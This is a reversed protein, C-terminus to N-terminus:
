PLRLNLMAFVAHARFDNAGSSSPERYYDFSYQLRGSINKGFRRTIGTELSHEQYRMGTPVATLPHINGYNAESFNWGVFLDTTESFVYTGSADASYTDGRYPGVTPADSNATHTKSPEYTFSAALYVRPHPTLVSGISYRQSDSRATHINGAPLVVHSTENSAGNATDRFDTTLLQYSLTTKLWNCPRLVLRAEIEDTLLNRASFFGPYGNPPQPPAANPYHSDNQYHRYHTSLTMWRWPSTSLGARFDSLQSSFDTRQIFNGSPQLDSDSQGISKQELRGEAFLVTFPIKTYRLAMTERASSEDYDAKLTTPVIFLNNPSVRTFVFQNLNGVGFGHQRTWETQVGASFTLGEWPGLLGNVNAVHSERELTINPMSGIFIRNALRTVNTFSSDANLHSYLYGASSFFWETIQKELRITNAGQFYNNKEKVDQRVPGRSASNTYHTTLNYFEGRFRDEIAVGHVEADLDFKIIHTGEQITKSAPNVNRSSGSGGNGNWATIAEDGKKYDFEYGLVMRPWDPLTLGFDIWAKGIELHLDQNLSLARPANTRQFGGTDDYYKRYQEWGSRIFGIDNRALSLQIKYDDNLVHGDLLVASEPGTQQFLEFDALGGNQGEHQWNLERFKHKDGNVVTSGFIPSLLVSYSNTLSSIGWPAGEDIWARLLAIQDSTLPDGKGSPPMEMDEVLNATFHILPSKASNGPIIDVGNDGGKLATPRSDLRFGAKPKTPGHCRICSADFIPKIDRAFDINNTAAPPLQSEDIAPAAALATCSLLLFGCLYRLNTIQRIASKFDADRSFTPAAFNQRAQRICNPSVASKLDASCPECNQSDLFNAANAEAVGELGKKLISRPPNL